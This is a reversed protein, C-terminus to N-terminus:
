VSAASSFPAVLNLAVPFPNTGLPLVGLVIKYSALFYPPPPFSIFGGSLNWTLGAYRHSAAFRM